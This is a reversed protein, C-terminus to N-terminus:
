VGARHKLLSAPPIGLTKVPHSVAARGQGVRKSDLQQRTRVVRLVEEQGRLM